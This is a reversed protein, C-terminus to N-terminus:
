RVATGPQNKGSEAGTPRDSATLKESNLSARILRLGSGHAFLSLTHQQGREGEWVDSKRGGGM